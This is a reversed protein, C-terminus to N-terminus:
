EPKTKWRRHLWLYQEPFQRVAKELEATFAATVATLNETSIEGNTPVNIEKFRCRYNFLGDRVCYGFVLPAGSRLHLLAAGVPTSAQQNLFQVFVGKKGADQDCLLGSFRQKKINILCNEIAGRTYTMELQWRKRMDIVHKDIYHNRQKKIIGMGGPFYKAALYAAITEWNGFHGTVLVFGKGGYSEVLQQMTDPQDFQMMSELKPLDWSSIKMFELMLMAFHRYSERAIRMREAVPKEPFARALNELAVKRRYKLVSFGLFALFSALAEIAFGPLIHILKEIGRFLLYEIYYKRDNSM